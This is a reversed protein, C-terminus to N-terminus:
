DFMSLQQGDDDHKAPPAQQEPLRPLAVAPERILEILKMLDEDNRLPMAGEALLQQNGLRKLNMNAWDVAAVPKGQNRSQEATVLSGGRAGSAVVVTANSLAAVLRNRAMLTGVAPAADPALESLVAGSSAIEEALAENEPPYVREIGSGLVGLTRGAAQMAGRHAASDLGLALGSVVTIGARAFAEALAFAKDFDERTPSRTGVMAVAMRDQPLIQGRMCLLPPPNRLGAFAEPYQADESSIVQVGDAQLDSIRGACEAIRPGLAIIIAIQEASLRSDAAALQGAHAEFIAATSGCHAVLKRFGAPGVGADWVLAARLARENADLSKDPKDDDMTPLASSIHNSSRM